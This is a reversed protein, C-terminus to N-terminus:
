SRRRGSLSEAEIFIHKVQPYTQRIRSELRDVAATV